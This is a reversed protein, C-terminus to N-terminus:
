QYHGHRQLVEIEYGDPDTVFFFKALLNNDPAFEVIDTPEFGLENFRLHESDLDDVCMAVHGYGSGHTYPETEGKNLTLELEMDNEGNRLYVLAFDEFDLQHSPTLGFAQEYFALSRDLDLVRIMAHIIKAM